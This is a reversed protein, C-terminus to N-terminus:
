KTNNWIDHFSIKIKGVQQHGHAAQVRGKNDKQHDLGYTHNSRNYKLVMIAIISLQDDIM